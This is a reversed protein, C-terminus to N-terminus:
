INPDHAVHLPLREADQSNVSVKSHFRESQTWAFIPILSCPMLLVFICGNRIIPNASQFAAALLGIALIITSLGVSFFPYAVLILTCCIRSRSGMLTERFWRQPCKTMVFTATSGVVLGGLVVGFSFLACIYPGAETYNLLSPRPPVTTILGITSSLMLGSIVTVTNIRDSLRDKQDIWVREDANSIEWVTELHSHGLSIILLSQFTLRLLPTLLLPADPFDLKWHRPIPEAVEASLHTSSTAMQPKPSPSASAQTQNIDAEPMPIISTYSAPHGQLSPDQLQRSASRQRSSSFIHAM